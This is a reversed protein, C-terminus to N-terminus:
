RSLILISTMQCRLSRLCVRSLAGDQHACAAIFFCLQVKGPLAMTFPGSPGETCREHLRAPEPRSAWKIQLYNQLGVMGVESVPRSLGHGWTTSCKGAAPEFCSPTVSDVFSPRITAADTRAGPRGLTGCTKQRVNGCIRFPAPQEHHLHPGDPQVTDDTLM